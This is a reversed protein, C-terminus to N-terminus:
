RASSSGSRLATTATSCAVFRTSPLKMAVRQLVASGVDLTLETLENEHPHPATTVTLRPRTLNRVRVPQSAASSRCTNYHSFGVPEPLPPATM